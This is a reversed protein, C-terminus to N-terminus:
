ELKTHWTVTRFVVSYFNEINEKRLKEENLRINVIEEEDTNQIVNVGGHQDLQIKNRIL